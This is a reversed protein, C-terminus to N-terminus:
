QLLHPLVVVRDLDGAHHVVRVRHRILMAVDIEAASTFAADHLVPRLELLVNLPTAGVCSKAARRLPVRAVRPVLEKAPAIAMAVGAVFSALRVCYSRSCWGSSRTSPSECDVAMTTPVMIPLPM